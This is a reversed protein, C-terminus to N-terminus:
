ESVLIQFSSESMPELSVNPMQDYNKDLLWGLGEAWVIQQNEDIILASAMREYYSCQQKKLIKYVSQNKAKDRGFFCYAGFSITFFHDLYTNEELKLTRGDALLIVAQSGIKKLPFDFPKFAKKQLFLWKSDCFLYWGKKFVQEHRRKLQFTNELRIVDSEQCNEINLHELLLKFFLSREFSDKLMLLTEKKLVIGQQNIWCQDLLQQAKDLPEQQIIQLYESLQILHAGYQPYLVKIQPLIKLRLTNRATHDSNNTCDENFQLKNQLAFSKINKKSQKLFPRLFFIGQIQKKALVGAFGSQSGRGIQMMLTEIHDDQHHGTLICSINKDKAFQILKQQRLCRLETESAKAAKPNDLSLVQFFYGMKKSWTAIIRKDKNEESLARYGHQCYCVLVSAKFVKSQHTWLLLAMSDVGGSCALLVKNVKKGCQHDFFADVQSVFSESPLDCM